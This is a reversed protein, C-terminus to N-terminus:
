WAARSPARRRPAPEPDPEPEPPRPREEALEAIRLEADAAREDGARVALAADEGQGARREPRGAQAGALRRLRVEDDYRSRSWIAPRGTSAAVNARSTSSAIAAASRTAAAARRRRGLELEQGRDDEAPEGLLPDVEGEDLDAEAPPEVRGMGPVAAHRRDRVDVEVVHVAEARRDRWMARSFAAIM